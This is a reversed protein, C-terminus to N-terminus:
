WDWQLGAALKYADDDSKGSTYGDDAFLYGFVAKLQLGDVIGQNVRLYLSTGLKDDEGGDPDSVVDEVFQM